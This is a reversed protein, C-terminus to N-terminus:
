MSLNLDDGFNEGYQKKLQELMWEEQKDDEDPADAAKEAAERKEEEAIWDLTEQVKEDEIRDNEQEVFMDSAKQREIKDFYEYALEYM